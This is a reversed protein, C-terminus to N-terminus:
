IWGLLSKPTQGPFEFYRIEFLGRASHMQGTGHNYYVCEPYFRFGKESKGDKGEERKM